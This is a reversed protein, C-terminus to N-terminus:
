NYINIGYYDDYKELEWPDLIHSGHGDRVIFLMNIEENTLDSEGNRCKKLEKTILKEILKCAQENAESLKIKSM